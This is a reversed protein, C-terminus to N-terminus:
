GNRVSLIGNQPFAVVQIEMRGKFEERLELLATLGQFSTETVDVHTRVFQVGYEAMLRLATRARDKIEPVILPQTTKYEQWTSIEEFLTGSMNYHPIGATLVCDLHIHPEVFPPMMMRGDAQYADPYTTTEDHAKISAFVGNECSVDYLGEKGRIRCGIIIM